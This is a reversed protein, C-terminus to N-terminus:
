PGGELTPTFGAGLKKLGEGM